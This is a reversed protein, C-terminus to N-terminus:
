IESKRKASKKEFYAEMEEKAKKWKEMLDQPGVSWLKEHLSVVGAELDKANPWTASWKPALEGWPMPGERRFAYNLLSQEMTTPNFRRWHQMVSMLYAYMEISPAALWFGASFVKSPRPPYPHLREGTLANDSRATFLYHAPLLAEDSKIQRTLNGLTRAPNKVIPENFISDIPHMVLTDSDIFLIRDYEVMELIRLKTFQDKWKKVGTRVWWPIKVDEVVVVKAGDMELRRRKEASVAITAVVLFVVDDRVMRTEPAIKLQYHLTRAGIFYNDAANEDGVYNKCLFTAVALKSSNTVPSLLGYSPNFEPPPKWFTIMFYCAITIAILAIFTRQAKRTGPRWKM